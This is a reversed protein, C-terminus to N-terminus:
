WARSLQPHNGSVREGHLPCFPVQDPCHCTCHREERGGALSQRGGWLIGGTTLACGEETQRKSALHDWHSFGETKESFCCPPTVTFRLQSIPSFTSRLATGLVYGKICTALTIILFWKQATAVRGQLLIEPLPVQPVPM